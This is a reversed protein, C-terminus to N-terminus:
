KSVEQPTEPHLGPVGKGHQNPNTAQNPHHHPITHSEVYPKGHDTYDNNGIRRGYQDFITERYYMNGDSGYKVDTISRTGPAVQLRQRTSLVSGNNIVEVKSGDPLKINKFSGSGQKWYNDYRIAEEPAMLDRFSKSGSQAVGAVDDVKGGGTSGLLLSTGASMAVSGFTVTGGSAVTQAIDLGTDTVVDVGKGVAASTAAKSGSGAGIAAGAIVPAAAGGTVVVLLTVGAAVAVGTAVKKWDVNKQM